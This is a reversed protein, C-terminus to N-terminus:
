LEIELNFGFFTTVEHNATDQDASIHVVEQKKAPEDLSEALLSDLTSQITSGEGCVEMGIVKGADHSFVVTGKM